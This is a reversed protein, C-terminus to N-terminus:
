PETKLGRSNVDFLTPPSPPAQPAHAYSHRIVAASAPMCTHMVQVHMVHTYTLRAVAAAIGVVASSFTSCCLMTSQRYQFFCSFYHHQFLSTFHPLKIVKLLNVICTVTSNFNCHVHRYAISADQHSAKVTYSSVHLVMRARAVPARMRDNAISQTPTSHKAMNIEPM